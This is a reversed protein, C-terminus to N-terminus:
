KKRKAGGSGTVSHMMKPGIRPSMMSKTGVGMVSAPKGGVTGTKGGRVNKNM